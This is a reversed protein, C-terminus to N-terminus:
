SPKEQLIFLLHCMIAGNGRSTKASAVNNSLNELGSFVEDGALISPPSLRLAFLGVLVGASTDVRMLSSGNRERGDKKKGPPKDRKYRIYRTELCSAAERRCTIFLAFLFSRSRTHAFGSLFLHLIVGKDATGVREQWRSQTM